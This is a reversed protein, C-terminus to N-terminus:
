LLEFDSVIEQNFLFLFLFPNERTVNIEALWPSRSDVRISADIPVVATSDGPTGQILFRQDERIDFTRDAPLAWMTTDSSFSNVTTSGFEDRAAVFVTSTIVRLSDGPTGDIIVRVSEPSPDEFWGCGGLVVGALAMVALWTRVKM